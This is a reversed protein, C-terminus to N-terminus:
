RQRRQRRLARRSRLYAVPGYALGALEAARLRHPVGPRAPAARSAPADVRGLQRRMHLLGRPLRRLIDLATAPQLLYKTLYGTLGSGYGFMQRRLAELDVRHRHWVLAGPEYALAQRTRLVRVFADLDEGGRTLSGAGLSEDFGGVDRLLRTRFAVNAGTGFVGATYPYLPPHGGRLDFLRPQCSSAWSVRADFYREALSDLRASAVLGTVCAVDARRAFGRLLGAIWHRDVTVDDDTFAVISGNAAALGANRARSLGPADERVYRVHAGTRNFSEVVGRSRADGPANDVVIIELPAPDLDILGTLCTYLDAPRDRTCVVVSVEGAAGRDREASAPGAPAVEVLARAVDVAGDAVPVEVFSVPTPGDRVLLRAWRYPRGGPGHPARLPRPARRDVEGCWVPEDRGPEGRV